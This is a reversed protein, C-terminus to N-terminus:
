TNVNKETNPTDIITNHDQQRSETNMQQHIELIELESFCVKKIITRVQDALRQSTTKFRVCEEWIEKIGKRYGRQTPSSWFYCHLALKNDEWTWKRQQYRQNTHNSLNDNM